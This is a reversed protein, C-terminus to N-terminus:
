VVSLFGVRERGRKERGLNEHTVKDPAEECKASTALWETLRGLMTPTTNQVRIRIRLLLPVIFSVFPKIECVFSPFLFSLRFDEEEEEEEEKRTHEKQSSSPHFANVFFVFFFFVFAFSAFSALAVFYIKLSDAPCFDLYFIAEECRDGERETERQRRRRERERESIYACVCRSFSFSLSSLSIMQTALLGDRGGVREREGM